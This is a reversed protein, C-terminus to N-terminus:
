PSETVVLLTTGRAFGSQNLTLGLSSYIVKPYAGVLSFDHFLEIWVAKVSSYDDIESTQELENDELSDNEASIGVCSDFDEDSDEHSRLLNEKDLAVLAFDYLLGISHTGAFEGQYRQGTPLLLRVSVDPNINERKTCNSPVKEDSANISRKTFDGLLGPLHVESNILRYKADAVAKQKRKLQESKLTKIRSHERDQQLSENYERNQQELIAQREMEQLEELLTQEREETARISRQVISEREQSINQMRRQYAEDAIDHQLSAVLQQKRLKHEKLRQQKASDISMSHLEQQRARISTLSNAYSTKEVTVMEPHPIMGDRNNSETSPLVGDNIVACSSSADKNDNCRIGDQLSVSTGRDDDNKDKANSQLEIANSSVDSREKIKALEENSFELWRDQQIKFRRYCWVVWFFTITIVAILKYTSGDIDNHLQSLSNVRERPLMPTPQAQTEHNHGSSARTVHENIAAGLEDEVIASDKLESDSRCTDESIDCSADGDAVEHNM